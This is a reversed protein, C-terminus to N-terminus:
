FRAYGVLKSDYDHLPIAVRGALLGKSCFGLGFHAITKPTFGRKDLYPHKPDLNKLEFNLPANVVVAPKSNEKVAAPLEFQEAEVRKSTTERKASTNGLQPCFKDRLKLAVTRLGQGDELSLNEMMVGFELM